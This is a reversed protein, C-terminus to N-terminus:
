SLGYKFTDQQNWSIKIVHYLQYSEEQTLMLTAGYAAYFPKSHGDLILVWYWSQFVNILNTEM